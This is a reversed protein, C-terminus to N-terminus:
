RTRGKGYLLTVKLLVPFLSACMEAEPSRGTNSKELKLYIGTIGM